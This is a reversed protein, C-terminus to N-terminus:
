NVKDFYDLLFQLFTKEAESLKHDNKLLCGYTLTLSQNFPLYAYRNHNFHLNIEDLSYSGIAHHHNILEKQAAISDIQYDCMKNQKSIVGGYEYCVVPFPYIGNIEYVTGINDLVKKLGCMYLEKTYYSIFHLNWKQLYNPLQGINVETSSVNIIALNFEAEGSQMKKAIKDNSMSDVLLKIKPYHYSFRYMLKGLYSDSFRPTIALSIEGQILKPDSIKQVTHCYSMIMDYNESLAKFYDLMQECNATPKVGKTSREILLVGLEQELMRIAKSVGQPSMNYKYATKHISHTQICSLLYQIQVINM